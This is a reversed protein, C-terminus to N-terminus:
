GFFFISYRQWLEALHALKKGIISVNVHIMDSGQPVILFEDQGTRHGKPQQGRGDRRDVRDTGDRWTGCDKQKM